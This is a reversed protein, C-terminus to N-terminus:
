GYIDILPLCCKKYKKLSGCLCLDNRGTSIPKPDPYHRDVVTEPKGNLHDIEHQWIQGEFGFYTGNHKDNNIDYYEVRVKRHRDTLIKRGQWTLCYETKKEQIGIYELIVPDFVLSWTGDRLNRLAFARVMFRKGNISIQNAALGVAHKLSSVYELFYFLREQYENIYDNIGISIAYVKPTQQGSIIKLDM